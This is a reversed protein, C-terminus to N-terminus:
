GTVDVWSTRQYRITKRQMSASAAFVVSPGASFNFTTNFAGTCAPTREVVIETGNAVGTATFFQSRHATIPQDYTTRSAGGVTTWASGNADGPYEAKERQQASRYISQMGTLLNDHTKTFASDQNNQSFLNLQTRSDVTAGSYRCYSLVPSGTIVSDRIHLHQVSTQVGEGLSFLAFNSTPFNAVDFHCYGVSMDGIRLQPRKSSGPNAAVVAFAQYSGSPEVRELHWKDISIVGCDSSVYLLADTTKAHEFNLIGFAMGQSSIVKVFGACTKRPPPYTASPVCNNLYTNPFTSQTNGGTVTDIIIAYDLWNHGDIREVCMSFWWGDTADPHPAIGQFCNEFELVDLTSRACNDYAIAIARTDAGTIIIGADYEARLVGVTSFYRAYEIHVCPEAKNTSVFNGGTSKFRISPTDRSDFALTDSIGYANRFYPELGFEKCLRMYSRLHTIADGNGLTPAGVVAPTAAQDESVRWFSGDAATTWWLGSDAAYLVTFATVADRVWISHGRDTVTVQTVEPFDSAFNVAQLQAFTMPKLTNKIKDLEQTLEAQGVFQAIETSGGVTRERVSLIGAPYEVVFLEGTTTAAEGAALGGPIFNGLALAADAANQATIAAAEATDASASAAIASVIANQEQVTQADIRAQFESELKAVTKHNGGLRDPVLGTGNLNAAGTVVDEIMDIDTRANSMSEAYADFPGDFSGIGSAGNKTYFGNLGLDPDNYVWVTSGNELNLLEETELDSALDTIQMGTIDVNGNVTSFGIGYLRIYATGAVGADIYVSGTSPGGTTPSFGVEFEIQQSPRLVGPNEGEISFTSGSVAIQRLSIDAWGVNKLTLTQSAANSGVLNSGFFLESHSIDLVYRNGNTDSFQILM